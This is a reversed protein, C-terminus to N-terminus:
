LFRKFDILTWIASDIPDLHGKVPFPWFLVCFNGEFTSM